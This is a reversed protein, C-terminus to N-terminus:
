KDKLGVFYVKMDEDWQINYKKARGEIIINKSILFKIFGKNSLRRCKGKGLKMSHEEKQDCPKLIIKNNREDYAGMLYDPNGIKKSGEKSFTIGYRGISICSKGVKPLYWEYAM